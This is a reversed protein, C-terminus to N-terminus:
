RYLVVSGVEEKVTGRNSSLVIRWNYVDEKCPEGSFTGDWGQPLDTTSFLLQGWRNYIQLSYKKASRIVPLFIDNNDDGNPTFANPVYMVFDQEIAINKVVTDSCGQETTVVLAVPYNGAEKFLYSTNENQSTYGNNFYWNWQNQNEGTSVNTFVVEDFEEVPKEPLWTFDAAPVAYGIVNLTYSDKCQTVTDRLHGVIKYEKAQTFYYSFLHNTFTKNAITWNSTINASSTPNFKFESNFPVCGEMTGSLNGSPLDDVKIVTSTSAACKNLDTVTLTFEGTYGVSNATFSFTQGTHKLEEPGTWYYGIGGTGNMTITEKLCVRNDLVTIAPTPLPL